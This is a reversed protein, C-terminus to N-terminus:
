GTIGVCSVGWGGGAVEDVGALTDAGTPLAASAAETMVLGCDKTTDRPACDVYGCGCYVPV